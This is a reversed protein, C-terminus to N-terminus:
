FNKMTEGSKPEPLKAHKWLLASQDIRRRGNILTDCRLLSSNLTVISEIIPEGIKVPLMFNSDYGNECNQQNRYFQHIEKEPNQFRISSSTTGKLKEARLYVIWDALSDRCCLVCPRPPINGSRGGQIFATYEEEFMFQTLIMPKDLGQIKGVLKSYTMCEPGWMCPPFNYIRKTVLHSWTGSERLLDSELQASAIPLRLAESRLMKVLDEQPMKFMSFLEEDSSNPDHFILQPIPLRRLKDKFVDLQWTNASEFHKKQIESPKPIPLEDQLLMVKAEIEHNLTKMETNFKNLADTCNPQGTIPDSQMHPYELVLERINKIVPLENVPIAEFRALHLNPPPPLNGTNAAQKPAKIVTHIKVQQQQKKNTNHKAKNDEEQSSIDMDVVDTM